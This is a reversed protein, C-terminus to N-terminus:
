DVPARQRARMYEGTAADKRLDFCSVLEEADAESLFRAVAGRRGHDM